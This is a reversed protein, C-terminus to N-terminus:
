EEIMCNSYFIVAQQQKFSLIPQSSKTYYQYLTYYLKAYKQRTYYLTYYQQGFGPIAWEQMIDGHYGWSIGM